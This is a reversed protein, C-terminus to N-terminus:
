CQIMQILHKKQSIIMVLKKLFHKAYRLLKLVNEFQGFARNSWMDNPVECGYGLTKATETWYLKATFARPEGKVMRYVTIKGWEPFKITKKVEKYGGGDSKKQKIKGSFEKEITPGFEVESQGAYEGTRTATSRIEVISAWITDIMKEEKSSWIPVIQIPRKMIDLKRAKCYDLAMLLTQDKQVNPYLIEKIVRYDEFKIGRKDLSANITTVENTM